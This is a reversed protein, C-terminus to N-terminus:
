LTSRLSFAEHDTLSTTCCEKKSHSVVKEIDQRSFLKLRQLALSNMIQEVSINYYGGVSQCFIRFEGKLTDSQFSGPLVSNFDKNILLKILSVIDNLTLYLSNSTDQTLCMVRGKCTSKSTDM